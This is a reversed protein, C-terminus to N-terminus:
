SEDRSRRQPAMMMFAGDYEAKLDKYQSVYWSYEQGLSGLRSTVEAMYGQAEKLPVDVMVSLETLIKEALSAETQIATLSAEIMEPDEMKIYSETDSLNNPFDGDFLKSANDLAQKVQKFRKHAADYNDVGNYLSDSIRDLATKANAIATDLDGQKHLGGMNGQLTKMAACMVVLYVYENPFNDISSSSHGTNVAYYTQTVYSSNDSGAAPPVTHVKGNLVYYGPNHKSRYNLSDVDTADFRLDPDILDCKRLITTSDHERVVSYIKGTLTVGSDDTDETSHTFKPLEVPNISIIRNAVEATAYVIFQSVEDQTPSTSASIGVGIM